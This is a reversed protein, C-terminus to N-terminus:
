PDVSRGNPPHSPPAAIQDLRHHASKVSSEVRALREAYGDLRERMARQEVRIDDVGGAISDLKAMPQAQNAADGRTDKRASLLLTVFAVLFGGLAVLLETKM